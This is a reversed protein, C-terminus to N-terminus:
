LSFSYSHFQRGVASVFGKVIRGDKNTFGALRCRRDRNNNNFKNNYVNIANSIIILINYIHSLSRQTVYRLKYLSDNDDRMTMKSHQIM